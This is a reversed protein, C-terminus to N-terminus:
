RPPCEGARRRAERETEVAGMAHVRALLRGLDTVLREIATERHWSTRIMEEGCTRAQALTTVNEVPTM